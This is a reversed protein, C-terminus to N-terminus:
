QQTTTQKGGHKEKLQKSNVWGDPSHHALEFRKPAAFASYEEESGAFGIV